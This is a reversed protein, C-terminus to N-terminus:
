GRVEHRASDEALQVEGGFAQKAELVSTQLDREAPLHSLLLISVDQEASIAGAQAASLHGEWKEDCEQLTAECVFLSAGRALAAFDASPGTDASYALVAGEREVRVGLTEAPHAMEAFSVRAGGLEFSSGADIERLDFSEDLEPSFHTIRELTEAPAWLPITPLPEAAGYRRAHMAQFVDSTHDPHRHTLLIGALARYDTHRQLNQWTGSGADLWLNQGGCDVLYGSCNREATAFMASSGLITLTMTM